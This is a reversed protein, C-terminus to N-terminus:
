EDDKGGFKRPFWSITLMYFNRLVNSTTVSLENASGYHRVSSSKRLIDFASLKMELNNTKLPRYAASFNWISFSVPSLGSSTNKYFSLNSNVRLGDIIKVSAGIRPSVLLNHFSVDSVGELKSRFHSITQRAEVTLKEHLHYYVSLTADNSFSKSRYLTGNLYRPSNFLASSNRVAVQVTQGNMKFSKSLSFTSNLFRHDNLNVAYRMYRGDPSLVASDAIYNDITGAAVSISYNLDKQFSFPIHSIDLSFQRRTYPDLAPNGAFINFADASDRLSFLSPLDPLYTRQSLKAAYINRFKGARSHDFRFGLEPALRHYSRDIRQFAHGLSNKMIMVQDRLIFDISLSRSYRNTLTKYFDRTLGLFPTLGFTKYQIRNTLYSDKTYGTTVTDIHNVTDDTGEVGMDLETGASLRAITTGNMRIAAINRLDVTLTNSLQEGARHQRRFLFRSSGEDYFSEFRSRLTGTNDKTGASFKNTITLIRSPHPNLESELPVSYTAFLTGKRAHSRGSSEILSTSQLVQHPDEVSHRHDSRSDGYNNELNARLELLRHGTRKEYRPNFTQRTNASMDEDAAHRLLRAEGPLVTIAQTRTSLDRRTQSHLFDASLRNKDGQSDEEVFDHQLMGGIDTARNLGEMTFHPLQDLDDGSQMYTNNELLTTVDSALKNINNHAGVLALQTRPTFWNLSGEFQLRSDTGLGLGLKGFIGRDKGQKLKINVETTSDRPQQSSKSRQYVQIKDVIDVPLNQTAVETSGGFFQKGNVLLSKVERGNVTIVGDSWVTVNPIKRLLDEVVEGPRSAFARPNFELTDKNMRIPPIYVVEVEELEDVGSVLNVRGLEMDPLSDQLFLDLIASRSEAYSIVLRYPKGTLLAEFEFEGLRNTLQYSVLKASDRIDYLAVTASILLAQHASDFAIGSVSGEGGDDTTQGSGHISCFLLLLIILASAKM